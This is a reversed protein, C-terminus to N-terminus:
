KNKTDETNKTNLEKKPYEFFIMKGKSGKIEGWDNIDFDIRVVGSTPINDIHSDSVENAFVTIGPNHSVLMISKFKKEAQSITDIFDETTGMYLQKRKVIKKIRYKLEQAFRKATAFARKAPSSIILGPIEKRKRLLKGMKPADRKGRKNLPRELDSLEPQKWSSKAHRLLYITRM